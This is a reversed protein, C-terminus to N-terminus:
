YPSQPRKVVVLRCVLVLRKWSRECREEEMRRNLETVCVCARVSVSISFLHVSVSVFVSLIVAITLQLLFAINRICPAVTAAVIAAVAKNCRWTVCRNRRRM